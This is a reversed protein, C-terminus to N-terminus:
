QCTKARLHPLPPVSCDSNGINLGFTVVDDHEEVLTRIDEDGQAFRAEHVVPDTCVYVLRGVELGEEALRTSGTISLVVDAHALRQFGVAYQMAQWAIGPYPECAINGLVVIHLPM